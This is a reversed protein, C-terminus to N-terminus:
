SGVGLVVDCIHHIDASTLSPHNPLHLALDHLRDAMPLSQIGGRAVFFPQRGMSGGGLPRTEIHAMALAEGLRDRHEVSRALVAFSISAVFAQPNRQVVLTAGLRDQYVCHNEHRRAIVAAAHELQMLGIKAQLDTPRVNFGPVYFTFRRNFELVGHQRALAAEKAPALDKAWGHSRLMLLLDALEGDSTGVVGGEITSLHHGYYTSFSCLDGFTGVLRGGYRSGFAACADEMLLFGHREKLAM